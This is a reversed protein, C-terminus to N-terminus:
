EEMNLKEVFGIKFVIHEGMADAKFFPCSCNQCKISCYYRKCDPCFYFDTKIKEGCTDCKDKDDNTILKWSLSEEIFDVAYRKKM